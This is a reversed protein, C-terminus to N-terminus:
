VFLTLEKQARTACVYLNKFAVLRDRNQLINATDVFVKEVTSGQARHGTVCYTHKIDAFCGRFTHFFHWLDGANKGKAEKAKEAISNEFKQKKKAGEETPIYCVVNGGNELEVLTEWIEFGLLTTPEVKLVEARTNVSAKIHFEASLLSTKTLAIMNDCGFLPSAFLIKDTPHVSSALAQKEGFLRSRIYHNYEAVGPRSCYKSSKNTWVLIRARDEVVADFSDSGFNMSNRAPVIQVGETNKPLNRVYKSLELRVESAWRLIAGRHRKVETLELTKWGQEFVPSVGNSSSIPPLQAWDGLWVCRMGSQGVYDVLDQLEDKDAKGAMSAEDIVLMNYDYFDEPLESQYITQKFNRTSLKLGLASYTTKVDAEAGLSLELQRVAENTPATFLPVAKSMSNAFYKALFTKGTGPQGSLIINEESGKWWNTLEKVSHLQSPTLTFKDENM